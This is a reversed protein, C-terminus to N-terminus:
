NKNKGKTKYDGLQAGTIISQKKYITSVDSISTLLEDENHEEKTAKIVEQPKLGSPAAVVQQAAM